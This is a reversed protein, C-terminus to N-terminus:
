EGDKDALERATANFTDLVSLLANQAAIIALNLAHFLQDDSLGTATVFCADGRLEVEGAVM